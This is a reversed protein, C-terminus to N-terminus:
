EHTTRVKSKRRHQWAVYAPHEADYTISEDAHIAKIAPKLLTCARIGWAKLTDHRVKALTM